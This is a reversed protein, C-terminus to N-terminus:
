SRLTPFGDLEIIKAAEGMTEGSKGAIRNVVGCTGAQIGQAGVESGRSSAPVVPDCCEPGTRGLCVTGCTCCFAARLSAPTSEPM